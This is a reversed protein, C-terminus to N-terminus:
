DVMKTEYNSNEVGEDYKGMEAYDGNNGMEDMHGYFTFHFDMCMDYFVERKTDASLGVGDTVM